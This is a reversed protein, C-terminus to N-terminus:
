DGRPIKKLLIHPQTHYVIEILLQKLGIVGKLSQNPFGNLDQTM